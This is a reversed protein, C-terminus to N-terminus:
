IVQLVIKGFHTNSQMLKQAQMAEALPFVRYIVPKIKGAEILPWVHKRLNAAIEAKFDNSRPRLTSGTVMLQRHVIQALDVTGLRGGLYAILVLRGEDALCDIEKDLVAAGIIDLIVDVGRGNTAQRIYEAFNETTSNVCREAGLKECARCKDETRATAFVRHGMAQAMQIATVGIGSAGAQVLLSEGEKLRGFDYVNSWVTFYTEPLSAAEIPTLGKPIPLCLRTCATCYEAYGGGQVLACVMDGVKFDSGSLDGGVIEGAIELGPIDPAGKPVVYRGIRQLVDPRNIGAAHVRILVEGPGAVPVPREALQLYGKSGQDIIEIAKM